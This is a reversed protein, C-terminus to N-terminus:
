QRAFGQGSAVEAEVNRELGRLGDKFIGDFLGTVKVALVAGIAIMMVYEITAQGRSRHRALKM